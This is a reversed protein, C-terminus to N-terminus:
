GTGRSACAGRGNGRRGRLAARDRRSAAPAEVDASSQVIVPRGRGSQSQFFAFDEPSSPLAMIRQSTSLMKDSLIEVADPIGQQVLEAPLPVQHLKPSVEGASGLRIILPDGALDVIANVFVPRKAAPSAEGPKAGSELTGAPGPWNRIAVYVGASVILFLSAAVGLAIRRRLVQQRRERAAKRKRRFSDDIQHM